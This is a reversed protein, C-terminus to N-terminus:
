SWPRTSPMEPMRYPATDPMNLWSRVLTDDLEEEVAAPLGTGLFGADDTSDLKRGAKRAPM